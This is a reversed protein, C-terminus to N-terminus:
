SIVGHLGLDRDLAVAFDRDLHQAARRRGGAAQLDLAQETAKL